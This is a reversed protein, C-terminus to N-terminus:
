RACGGGGALGAGLLASRVHLANLTPSVVETVDGPVSRKAELRAGAGSLQWHGDLGGSRLLARARADDAVDVLAIRVRAARATRQLPAALAQTAHGVLGLKTAKNSHVLAPITVGAVVLLATIVTMVRLFRGELRERIERGAILRVQGRM